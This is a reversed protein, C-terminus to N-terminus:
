NEGDGPKVLPSSLIQGTSVRPLNAPKQVCKPRYLRGGRIKSSKTMELHVPKASETEKATAEM